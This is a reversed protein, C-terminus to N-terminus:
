EMEELLEATRRALGDELHASRAGSYLRYAESNEGEPWCFYDAALKRGSEPDYMTLVPSDEAFLTGYKEKGSDPIIYLDAKALADANFLAYSFPHVKVMRIRDGMERNLEEALEEANRVECDAFITIKNEPRTDTLFNLLFGSLIVAAMGWLVAAPIFRGAARKLTKLSSPAKRNGGAAALELIELGTIFRHAATVRVLSGDAPMERWLRANLNLSFDKGDAELRIKRVWVSKPIRFIDNRLFLRGELIEPTERELGELHRAEARAPEAAFMWLALTGWGSLILGTWAAAKVTRLNSDRALICCAALFLLMGAALGCCLWTLRRAKAGSDRVTQRNVFSKM